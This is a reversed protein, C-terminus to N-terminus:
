EQCHHEPSETPYPPILGPEVTHLALVRELTSKSQDRPKQRLSSEKKGVPFCQTHIISEETSTFKQARLFSSVAKDEEKDEEKM